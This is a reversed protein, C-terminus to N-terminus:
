CLCTSGDRAGWKAWFKESDPTPQGWNDVEPVWVSELEFGVRSNKYKEGEVKYEYTVEPYYYKVSTVPTMSVEEFTDRIDLVKGPYEKWNLIGNIKVLNTTGRLAIAIGLVVLFHHAHEPVSFALIGGIILIPLWKIASVYYQIGGKSM